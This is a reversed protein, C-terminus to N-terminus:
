NGIRRVYTFTGSMGTLAMVTSSTSLAPHEIDTGGSELEFNVQFVGPGNIISTDVITIRGRAQPDRALGGAEDHNLVFFEGGALIELGADNTGGFLGSGKTPCPLWVGTLETRLEAESGFTNQTAPDPNACAEAHHGQEESLGRHRKSGEV